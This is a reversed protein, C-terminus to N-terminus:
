EEYIVIMKAQVYQMYVFVRNNKGNHAYDEIASRDNTFDELYVGSGRGAEVKYVKTDTRIRYVFDPTKSTISSTTTVGIVDEECTM